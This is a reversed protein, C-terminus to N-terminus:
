NTSKKLIGRRIRSSPISLYYDVMSIPVPEQIQIRSSPISLIVFLVGEGGQLMLLFGAQLFQFNKFANNLLQKEDDSHIRSSPISLDWFLRLVSCRSERFGAQLFQFLLRHKIFVVLYSVRFGAQLFQFHIVAKNVVMGHPLSDPKFSNFPKQTM